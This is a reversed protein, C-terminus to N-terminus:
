PKDNNGQLRERGYHDRAESPIESFAGDSESFGIV